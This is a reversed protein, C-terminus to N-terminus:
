FGRKVKSFILTPGNRGKKGDEGEGEIREDSDNIGLGPGQDLPWLLEM